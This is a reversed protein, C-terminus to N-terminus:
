LGAFISTFINILILLFTGVLFTACITALLYLLTGITPNKFQTRIIKGFDIASLIFAIMIFSILYIVLAVIPNAFMLPIQQIGLM